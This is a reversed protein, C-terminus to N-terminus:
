FLDFPTTHDPDYAKATSEDQVYKSHIDTGKIRENANCTTLIQHLHGALLDQLRILVRELKEIVLHHDMAYVFGHVLNMALKVMDQAVQYNDICHTTMGASEVEIRLVNNVAAIAQDYNYPNLARWPQLDHFLNILDSDVHFHSPSGLATLKAEMSSNFSFSETTEHQQILYVVLVTTVFALIHGQGIAFVRTFMFVSILAVLAYEFGAM